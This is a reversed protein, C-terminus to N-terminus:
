ARWTDSRRAAPAHLGRGRNLHFASVVRVPTVSCGTPCDVEIATGNLWGVAALRHCEPCTEWSVRESMM